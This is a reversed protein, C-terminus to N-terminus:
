LTQLRFKAAYARPNGIIHLEHIDKLFEVRASSTYVPDPPTPPPPHFVERMRSIQTM